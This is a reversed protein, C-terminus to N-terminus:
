WNTVILDAQVEPTARQIKGLCSFLACIGDSNSKPQQTSAPIQDSSGRQSVFATTLHLQLHTMYQNHIQCKESHSNRQAKFEYTYSTFSIDM